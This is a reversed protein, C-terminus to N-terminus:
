DHRDDDDGRESGPRSACTSAIGHRRRRLARRGDHHPAPLPAPRAGVHLRHRRLGPLVDPGARHRRRRRVGQGHQGGAARLEDDTGVTRAAALAIAKSMELALSTDALQHKVGQFSGIPRGFAIRDKAYQVTMQSTTTWRGSRDRRRDLTCPSPSSGPRAADDAAGPAGVVAARRCGPGTSASRPSAGAHPRAVRARHRHRGAADAAVLAQAPGDPTACTVLLWSSPEVDQVATKAGTLELGGDATSAATWAATSGATAASGAVAWSASVDGALLAPLVRTACSTAGPPPWRTPSSTPASSRAPSCCAAGARLRDARRRARRQGVRERRRPGGPRADLVLRARGGAPPLSPRSGTTRGRATASRGCRARTRWSARRSRSCRGNTTPRM